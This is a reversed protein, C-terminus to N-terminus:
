RVGRKGMELRERREKKRRRLLYVAHVHVAKWAVSLRASRLPAPPETEAIAVVVCRWGDDVQGAVIRAVIAGAIMYGAYRPDADITDLTLRTFDIETTASV